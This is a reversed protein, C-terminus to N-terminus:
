NKNLLDLATSYDFYKGKQKEVWYIDFLNLYEEGFLEIFAKRQYEEIKLDSCEIQLLLYSKNGKSKSVFLMGTSIIGQELVIAEDYLFETLLPLYKEKKLPLIKSNRNIWSISYYKIGKFKLCVPFVRKSHPLILSFKEILADSFCHTSFENLLINIENNKNDISQLWSDHLRSNFYKSIHPFIDEKSKLFATYENSLKKVREEDYNYDNGSYCILSDLLPYKKNFLNTNM